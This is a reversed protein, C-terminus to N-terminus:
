HVCYGYSCYLTKIKTAKAREIGPVLCVLSILVALYVRLHHLYQFQSKLLSFTTQIRTRTKSHPHNYAQQPSLFSECAYGKDGM